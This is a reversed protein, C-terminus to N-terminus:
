HIQLRIEKVEWQKTGILKNNLKLKIKIFGILFISWAHTTNDKWYALELVQTESLNINGKMSFRGPIPNQMRLGM